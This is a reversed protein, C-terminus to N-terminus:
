NNKDINELNERNKRKLYAFCQALRKEEPNLSNINPNKKHKKIYEKIKPWLMKAEEMSIEPSNSSYITEQITSLVDPDIKKSLVEFAEQFPNISDILDIDIDEVDLKKAFKILRQDGEIKKDTLNRHLVVQQRIQDIVDESQNPFAQKLIKPIIVKNIVKPDISGNASKQIDSNQNILANIDNLQTEIIKEAEPSLKKIGKIKIEGPTLKEDDDDNTKPKFKWVPALVSEMLLSAAVAKLFNNVSYAVLDDKADPQAILNTFQAHSKNSSDRTCRGIIQIIQTLSGRYSITLAHECWPWDFGEQARNLAIIIDIDDASNMKELYASIKKINKLEAEVLDAIKLIKGDKRKVYIVGTEPDQKEVDGISDLIFGVEDDKRKTSENSIPHPIHIITKKNTDLVEMIASTYQGQYFHFGLGLSKLYKYGNLQEYYNYIVKEFKAEDELTLVPVSDGRFYSGTMAVIHASSENIIKKLLEGMINGEESSVHHFEDIALIIKDFVNKKLKDCAFRFTSHTCILIKSDKDDLFDHFSKVKRTSNSVGPTCLNYKDEICWDCFFGHSKLDTTKFSSGIMKQPVCVIVKKIGQNTLKDLALFMLARSKGSAPPAKVLLYQENKKEYARAQMERMGLKNLETSTEKQQYELNLIDIM